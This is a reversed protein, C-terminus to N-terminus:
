LLDKIEEISMSNTVIGMQGFASCDFIILKFFDIKEDDLMQGNHLDELINNGDVPDKLIYYRLGGTPLISNFGEQSWIENPIYVRVEHAEKSAGGLLQSFLSKKGIPAGKRYRYILNLTKIAKIFNVSTSERKSENTILLSSNLEMIIDSTGKLTSIMGYSNKSNEEETGKSKYTILFRPSNLGWEEKSEKVKVNLNNKSIM